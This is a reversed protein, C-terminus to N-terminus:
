RPIIFVLTEPRPTIFCLDEYRSLWNRGRSTTAYRNEDKVLLGQSILNHFYRKIIKFNLNCQYIIHTKKAGDRAARLIDACIDM